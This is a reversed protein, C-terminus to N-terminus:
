ICHCRTRKGEPLSLMRAPVKRTIISDYDTGAFYDHERNGFYPFDVEAVMDHRGEPMFSMELTVDKGQGDRNELNWRGKEGWHFGTSGCPV